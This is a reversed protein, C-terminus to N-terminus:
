LARERLGCLLHRTAFSLGYSVSLTRLSERSCTTVVAKDVLIKRCTLRNCKLDTEMVPLDSLCSDYDRFPHLIPPGFPNGHLYSKYPQQNDGRRQRQRAREEEGETLKGKSEEKGRM